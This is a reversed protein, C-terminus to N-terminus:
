LCRAQPHHACVVCFCLHAGFSALILAPSARQEAREAHWTV